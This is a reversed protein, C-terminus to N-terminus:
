SITLTIRTHHKLTVASHADADDRCARLAETPFVLILSLTPIGAQRVQILVPVHNVVLM